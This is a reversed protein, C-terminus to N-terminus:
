ELQSFMALVEQLRYENGDYEIRIRWVHNDIITILTDVRFDFYPPNPSYVKLSGTHWQHGAIEKTTDPLVFDKVDLGANRMVFGIGDMRGQLYQSIPFNVIGRPLSRVYFDVFIPSDNLVGHSHMIRITNWNKIAETWLEAGIYFESMLNAPISMSAALDSISNFQFDYPATFKLNISPNKYINEQLIGRSVISPANHLTPTIGIKNRFQPDIDSFNDWIEEIDQIDGRTSITITRLFEGQINHFRARMGIQGFIDSVNSTMYYWNIDGLQRPYAGIKIDTHEEGTDLGDIALIFKEMLEHESPTVANIPLMEVAINVANGTIFDEARMDLLSLVIDPSPLDDLSEYQLESISFIRAVREEETYMFWTEPLEFQFGMFENVYIHGHWTGRVPIPTNIDSAEYSTNNTCSSLVLFFLVLSVIRIIKKM